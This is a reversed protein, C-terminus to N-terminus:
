FLTDIADADLTGPAIVLHRYSADGATGTGLSNLRVRAGTAWAAPLTFGTVSAQTWANGNISQHLTLTGATLTWWFRVVDGSVPQGATLTAVHATSGTHLTMRYYTGSTDLVLRAGTGDDASISFLCRGSVTRAGTEVIVLQGTMAQPPPVTAWSLRDTTGMRLAFLGRRVEWGPVDRPLTVTAGTTTLIALTANRAHTAAAGSALSLTEDWARWHVLASSRRAPTAGRSIPARRAPGELLLTM